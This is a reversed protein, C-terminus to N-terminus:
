TIGLVVIITLVIWVVVFLSISKMSFPNPKSVGLDPPEENKYFESLIKEAEDIKSNDHVWVSLNGGPILKHIGHTHKGQISTEINRDLLRNKIEEARSLDSTRYVLKM